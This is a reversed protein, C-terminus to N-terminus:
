LPIYKKEPNFFKKHFKLQSVDKAKAVFHKRLINFAGNVDSNIIQSNNETFFLGRVTKLYKEGKHNEKVTHYTITKGRRTEFTPDYHIEQMRGRKNKCVLVENGMRIGRSGKFNKKAGVNKNGCPILESDYSSCMSTYDERIPPIFNGGIDEIKYKLKKLFTTHPMKCFTKNFKRNTKKNDSIKSKLKWNKNKGVICNKIKHKIMLDVIYKSTKHLFNEVFNEYDLLIAQKASGDKIGQKDYMSQVKAMRQGFYQIKSSLEGGNIIECISGDSSIMTVFNDVGLDISLYKNEDLDYDKKPRDTFISIKFGYNRPYVEVYKRDGDIKRTPINFPINIASRNKMKKRLQLFGNKFVAEGDFKCYFPVGEELPKPFNPNNYSIKIDNEKKWDMKSLKGYFSGISTLCKIVTWRGSVVTLEPNDKINYKKSYIAAFSTRFGSFNFLKTIDKDLFLKQFEELGNFDGDICKKVVELTHNYIKTSAICAKELLKYEESNKDNFIFKQSARSTEDKM